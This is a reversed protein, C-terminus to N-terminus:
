IRSQFNKRALRREIDKKKATSLSAKSKGGALKKAFAARTSRRARKAIVGKNALRRRARKRAIKLQTKRRKMSRALKRRGQLTLGQEELEEEENLFAVFTLM